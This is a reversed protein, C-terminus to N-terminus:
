VTVLRAGQHEGQAEILSYGYKQCLAVPARDALVLVIGASEGHVAGAGCIKASSGEKEIESIFQAVKSPVVGIDTLLRNNVRILESISSGTELANEIQNTVAEFEQWISSTKFNSAVHMVCEGTNSVSKGTNVIYLSLDPLALTRAKGNQFKACGGNLSIYSDVGSSFGHQLREAEVSLRYLWELNIDLNLFHTLARITSVITAASSGMGCGVPIESHIKIDFGKKIKTQFTDILNILTFQFLEAPKQLVQRISLTGNLCLHYSEMLRDRLLRLAGFTSSAKQKFDALTLHIHSTTAAAIEAYAFRNIATVIAPMGYVVAHEGTLIIKAPSAVKLIRKNM